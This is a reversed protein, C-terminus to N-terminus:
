KRRATRHVAADAAGDTARHIVGELMLVMLVIGFVVAHMADMTSLLTRREDSYLRTATDFLHPLDNLAAQRIALLDSRQPNQDDHLRQAHELYEQVRADLATPPDFYLRRIAQAHPDDSPLSAVARILNQHQQTMEDIAESLAVRARATDQPDSTDMLREASLAIRQSLAHQRTSAVVLEV